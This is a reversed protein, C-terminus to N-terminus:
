VGFARAGDQDPVDMKLRAMIEPHVILMGGLRFAAPTTQWNKERKEWKRRIRRKKSKPFRLQRRNVAFVSEKVTLGGMVPGPWLQEGITM